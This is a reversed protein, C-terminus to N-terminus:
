KMGAYEFSLDENIYVIDVNTIKGNSNRNFTNIETEKDIHELTTQSVKKTASDRIITEIYELVNNYYYKIQVIKNDDDRILEFPLDIYKIKPNIINTINNVITEGTGGSNGNSGGGSSSSSSNSNNKQIILSTKNDITAQLTPLFKPNIGDPTIIPEFDNTGNVSIGIQGNQMRIMRNPNNIEHTYIGKYDVGTSKSNGAIIPKENANYFDESQKNKLNETEKKLNSIDDVLQSIKETEKFTKNLKQIFEDEDNLSNINNLNSINVGIKNTKSNYTFSTFNSEVKNMNNYKVIESFDFPIIDM